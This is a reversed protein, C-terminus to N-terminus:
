GHSEKKRPLNKSNKKERQSLRAHISFTIPHKITTRQKLEELLILFRSKPSSTDSCKINTCISHCVHTFHISNASKTRQMKQELFPILAHFSCVILNCSHDVLFDSLSLFLFMFDCWIMKSITNHLSFVDFVIRSHSTCHACWVCVCVVRSICM